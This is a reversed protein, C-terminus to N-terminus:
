PLARWAEVRPNASVVNYVAMEFNLMSQSVQLRGETHQEVTVTLCWREDEVERDYVLRWARRRM